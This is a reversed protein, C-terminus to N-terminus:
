SRQFCQIASAGGDLTNCGPGYNRYPTQCQPGRYATCYFGPRIGIAQIDREDTFREICTNLAIPQPQGGCGPEEFVVVNPNPEQRKVMGALASPILLLTALKMSVM